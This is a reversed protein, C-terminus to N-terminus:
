INKLVGYVTWPHALILPFSFIILLRQLKRTCKAFETATNM